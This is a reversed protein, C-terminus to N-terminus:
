IVPVDLLRIVAEATGDQPITLVLKGHHGGAGLTRFAGAAQDLPIETVPLAALRGAALETEVERIAATVVQPRATDLGLDVSALTINRRFPYLGIRTDPYIDKKGLEIFRGCCSGAEAEALLDQRGGRLVRPFV